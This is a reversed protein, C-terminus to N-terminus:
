NRDRDEPLLCVEPLCYKRLLRLAEGGAIRMQGLIVLQQGSLRLIENRTLLGLWERMKGLMQMLWGAIIETNM